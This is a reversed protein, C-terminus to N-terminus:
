EGLLEELTLTKKKSGTDGCEDLGLTKLKKVYFAWTEMMKEPNGENKTEWGTSELAKNMVELATFQSKGETELKKMARLWKVLTPTSPFSQSADWSMSYLKSM